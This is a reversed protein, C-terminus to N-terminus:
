PDINGLHYLLPVALTKNNTTKKGTFHQIFKDKLNLERHAIEALCFLVLCLQRKLLSVCEIYSVIFGCLSSNLLCLMVVTNLVNRQCFSRM